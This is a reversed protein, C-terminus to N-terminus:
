NDSNNASSKNCTELTGKFGVAPSKQSTYVEKGEKAESGDRLAMVRTKTTLSEINFSWTPNKVNRGATLTATMANGPM